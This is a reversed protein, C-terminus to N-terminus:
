RVDGEQEQAAGGPERLYTPAEQKRQADDTSAKQALTAPMADSAGRRAARADPLPKRLRASATERGRPASRPAVISRRAACETPRDRRFGLEDPRCSSRAARRQAFRPAVRGRRSEWPFPAGVARPVGFVFKGRARM